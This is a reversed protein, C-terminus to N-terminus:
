AGPVVSHRPAHLLTRLEREWRRKGASPLAQKSHVVWLGVFNGLSM